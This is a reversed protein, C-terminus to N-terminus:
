QCRNGKACDEGCSECGVEFVKKERQVSQYEELKGPEFTDGPAKIAIATSQLKGHPFRPAFPAPEKALWNAGLKSWERMSSGKGGAALTQLVRRAALASSGTGRAVAAAISEAPKAATVTEDAKISTALESGGPKTKELAQLFYDNFTGKRMSGSKGCWEDVAAAFAKCSIDKAALPGGGGAGGLITAIGKNGV